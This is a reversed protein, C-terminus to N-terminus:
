TNSISRQVCRSRRKPVNYEDKSGESTIIISTDTVATVNGVTQM